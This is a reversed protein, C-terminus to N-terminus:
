YTEYNAASGMLWLRAPHAELVRTLESVVYSVRGLGDGSKDEEGVVDVLRKLDGLCLVLGPFSRGDDAALWLGVEGLRSDLCPRGQSAGVFESVEKEISLLEVGRAEPPFSAWRQSAVAGEFDRAADGAGVGVLIPNRGRNRLLVEAIRRCNEDAGD